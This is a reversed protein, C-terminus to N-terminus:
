TRPFAVALRKTSCSAVIPNGIIARRPLQMV